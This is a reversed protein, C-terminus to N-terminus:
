ESAPPQRSGAHLPRKPSTERQTNALLSSCLLMALFVLGPVLQLSIRGVATFYVAGKAYGTFLFLILFLALASSLAALIGQCHRAKGGASILGLPLAAIFLYAFLHWNGHVWFVSGIGALAGPRYHLNLRNLSHGAVALDPPFFALVGVAALLLCCLLLLAKRGPVLVVVLAPIFTLLWYFGENKILPCCLAFFVAMGAQWNQRQVSWNHFAMLAACYCAGLFLDAYGALAVHTNVLPMSLLFYCFVTAVVMGAGSARAQGFFAAGLGILCLLWPLNMLSEDWQGKASNMWVQLLPTTIPYDPHNDTYVGEGALELWQSNEVFPVIRGAEFWVRAKTAWHMTADWPFLPRLMLELGLTALRVAILTGLFAVLMKHSPPLTPWLAQPLSPTATHPQWFYRILLAFLILGCAFSATTGFGLPLGLADVLRMLMPVVLLGALIGNGWVLARRGPTGPPICLGLWLGGLLAPIALAVLILFWEM